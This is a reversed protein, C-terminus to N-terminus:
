YVIAALRDAMCVEPGTKLDDHPEAWSLLLVSTTEHRFQRGTHEMRKHFRMKLREVESPAVPRAMDTDVTIVAGPM